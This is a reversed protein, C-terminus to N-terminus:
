ESSAGALKGMSGAATLAPLSCLRLTECGLSHRSRGRSRDGRAYSMVLTYACAMAWLTNSAPMVIAFLALLKMNPEEPERPRYVKDPEKFKFLKMGTKKRWQQHKDKARQWAEKRQEPSRVSNTWVINSKYAKTRKPAVHKDRADVQAMATEAVM